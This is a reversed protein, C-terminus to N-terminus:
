CGASRRKKPEATPKPAPSAAAPAQPKAAGPAAAAPASAAPPSALFGPQALSGLDSESWYAQLGGHLAIVRRDTKQALIGGAMMALSGDRDVIVLPLSGELYAPNGLLQALEVNESGPLQYDTFHAAPRVDVVQFTGPLDMMMRKLETPSIRDALKPPPGSVAPLVCSAQAEVVPLGAELWAESGGAMSRVNRFGQREFVGIALSSRYASNCVAVIPANRDLKTSEKELKNLPINVITGIRLAAWESPLRVDVVIPSEPQEMAAHLERPEIPPTKAIPLGAKEWAEYAMVRAKYGVRHLRHIAERLEDPKGVVVLNAGWPVMIGTWTEFRGRLAINVSGPVHGAAYQAADRVDVLYFQKPDSLEASPKVEPLEAPSWEVLEPGQRNMAANHAFYQPAEPLGDLVAAVFEGRTKYQLYPNSVREKGITSIPEDGLHAGCLSGAGHAPMIVVEDPLKSLKTTWTDFMMSALTSAAMGEGLLDPRGVSGVFLTDGTLLALPKQPSSASAVAGSMSDPTHGPTELFTVIAQGVKLTDGEKLPTHKYGAGAQRSIYIPVGLSNALEMQGAVFDAHSHTLWVGIIKVNRDTAAKVYAETDRGPDVVLAEGDSILLYSFHSLTSLNFQVVDFGAFKYTDVVEYEAASSDHTASEADKLESSRASHASVMAALGVVGAILWERKSM